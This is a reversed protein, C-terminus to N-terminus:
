RVKKESLELYIGGGVRSQPMRTKTRNGKGGDQGLVVQAGGKAEYSM